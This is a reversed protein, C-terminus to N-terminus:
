EPRNAYQFLYYTTSCHSARKELRSTEIFVGFFHYINQSVWPKVEQFGQNWRRIHKTECPSLMPKVVRKRSKQTAFINFNVDSLALLCENVERKCIKFSMSNNFYKRIKVYLLAKNYFDYQVNNWYYDRWKHWKDSLSHTLSVAFIPAFLSLFTSIIISNTWRSIDIYIDRMYM